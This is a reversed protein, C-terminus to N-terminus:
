AATTLTRLALALLFGAHLLFFHALVTTAALRMVGPGHKHHCAQPGMSHAALQSSAECVSIGGFRPRLWSMRLSRRLALLPGPAFHADRAKTHLGLSLWVSIGFVILLLLAAFVLSLLGLETTTEGTCAGPTPGETGNGSAGVADSAAKLASALAELQQLLTRALPSGPAAM